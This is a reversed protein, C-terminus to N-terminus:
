TTSRTHQCSGHETGLSEHKAAYVIANAGEGVPSSVVYRDVKCGDQLQM